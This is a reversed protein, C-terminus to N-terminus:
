PELELLRTAVARGADPFPGLAELLLGRVQLWEASAQLNLVNVVPREDLEGTVKMLTTVISELRKVAELQLKGDGKGRAQELVEAARTALDELRQVGTRAGQLERKTAVAKMAPTLHDRRHRRVADKSLGWREAIAANVRPQAVMEADIKPRDAHRCVTCQRPAM